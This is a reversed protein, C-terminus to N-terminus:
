LCDGAINFLKLCVKFFVWVLLVVLVVVRNFSWLRALEEHAEKGAM